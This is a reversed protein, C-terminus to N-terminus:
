GIRVLNIASQINDPILDLSTSSTFAVSIVDSVAAVLDIGLRVRTQTPQPASSALLSSGNKSITIILGSGASINSNVIVEYVGAVTITKQFTNLGTVSNQLSEKIINAM